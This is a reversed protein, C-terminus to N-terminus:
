AGLPERRVRDVLASGSPSVHGFYTRRRMDSAHRQAARGLAASSRLASLGRREREHAILCGLARKDRRTTAADVALLGANACAAQQAAGAAGGSDQAGAPAAALTAAGLAIALAGSLV